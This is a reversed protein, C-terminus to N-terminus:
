KKLTARLQERDKELAERDQRLADKGAELEADLMQRQHIEFTRMLEKTLLMALPIKERCSPCSIEDPLKIPAAPTVRVVTAKSGVRLESRSKTTTKSTNIRM